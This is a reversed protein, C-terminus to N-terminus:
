GRWRNFPSMIFTNFRELAVDDNDLEMFLDADLYENDCAWYTIGGEYATTVWDAVMQGTVIIPREIFVKISEPM